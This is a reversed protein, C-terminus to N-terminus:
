KRVNVDISAIAEAIDDGNEEERISRYVHKTRNLHRRVPVVHREDLRWLWGNTHPSFYSYHKVSRFVFAFSVGNGCFAARHKTKYLTDKMRTPIEDEPMLVFISGDRLRHVFNAHRPCHRWNRRKARNGKSLHVKGDDTEKEVPKTMGM